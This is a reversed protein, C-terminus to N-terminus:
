SAIQHNIEGLILFLISKVTMKSNVAVSFPYWEYTPSWGDEDHEHRTIIQARYELARYGRKRNDDVFEIAKCGYPKAEEIAEDLPSFDQDLDLYLLILTQPSTLTQM